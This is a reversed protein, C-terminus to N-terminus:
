SMIAGCFYVRDGTNSLRLGQVGKAVLLQSIVPAFPYVVANQLLHDETQRCGRAAEEPTSQAIGTLLADVTKSQYRMVNDEGESHAINKLVRDASGDAPLEAFAIDYDGQQLRTQLASATLPTIDMQLSLGFVSQWQQLLVRMQREDDATCLLSIQIKTQQLEALGEQWLQKARSKDPTINRPASTNYDAFTRGALPANDPILSVGTNEGISDFDIAACMAVRLKRSSFPSKGCHFLLASTGTRQNMWVKAYPTEADAAISAPMLAVSYGGEAGILRLRESQDPQIKFVIASPAVATEGAYGENKRLRLQSNDWISLSFPGNSLLNDPSLGYRGKTAEFYIQNCPMAIPQTLTQEFGDSPKELTLLLTFDDVAEVGLTEVAKKGQHIDRANKLPYLASANPAGTAPDIGRRLAFVFDRATVRTDFAAFAEDDLGLRKQAGSPLRWHTNERLHFTYRLGDESKEWAYAVGPSLGDSGGDLAYPCLLGEFANAIILEAERGTAISPDLYEPPADIPFSFVYGTGDDGCSSLLVLTMAILLLATIKKINKKINIHNKM